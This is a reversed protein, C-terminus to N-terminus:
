RIGTLALVPSQTAAIDELESVSRDNVM